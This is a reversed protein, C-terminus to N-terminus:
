LSGAHEPKARLSSASAVALSDHSPQHFPCFGCRPSPARLPSPCSFFPQLVPIILLDQERLGSWRGRGCIGVTLRSGWGEFYGLRPGLSTLGLFLILGVLFLLSWGALDMM